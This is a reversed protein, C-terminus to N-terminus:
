ETVEPFVRRLWADQENPDRAPFGDIPVYRLFRLVGHPDTDGGLAVMEPHRLWNTPCSHEEYYFRKSDGEEDPSALAKTVIVGRLVVYLPKPSPQLALLDLTQYEREAHLTLTTYAGMATGVYGAGCAGCFWPGFSQGAKLHDIAQDTRAGCAPCILCTKQYTSAM